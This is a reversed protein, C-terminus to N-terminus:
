NLKVGAKLNLKEIQVEPHAPGNKGWMGGGSGGSRKKYGFPNEEINIRKDGRLPMKGELTLMPTM